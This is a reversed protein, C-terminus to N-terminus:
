AVEETKLNLNVNGEKLRRQLLNLRTRVSDDVILSGVRVVMGGLLEEDQQLELNVEKGFGKKLAAKLDKAQKDSLVHATGVHATLEGKMESIAKLSTTVIGQLEQIRRNKALLLLFNTTVANLKAKKAIAAITNMKDERSLLPSEVFARFDESNSLMASLDNLDKEVADLNKREVALDILATTYREAVKQYDTRASM